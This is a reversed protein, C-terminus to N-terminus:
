TTPNQSSLPHKSEMLKYDCIQHLSKSPYIRMTFFILMKKKEKEPSYRCCMSIGLSHTLDSSYSCAQAVALAVHSGLHMKLRCWLECCHQIRLGSVLGPISSVDEPISATDTVQQAVTPVGVNIKLHLLLKHILAQCFQWSSFCFIESCLPTRCPFDVQSVFHLNLWKQHTSLWLLSLQTIKRTLTIM